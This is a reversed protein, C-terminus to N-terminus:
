HNNILFGHLIFRSYEFPVISLIEPGVPRGYLFIVVKLKWDGRLATHVISCINRASVYNLHPDSSQLSCHPIGSSRPLYM